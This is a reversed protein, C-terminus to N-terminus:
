MAKVSKGDNNHPTALFGLSLESLNLLGDRYSFNKFVILVTSLSVPKFVLDRSQNTVM